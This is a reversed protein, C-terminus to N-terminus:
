ADVLREDDLEYRPSTLVFADLEGRRNL